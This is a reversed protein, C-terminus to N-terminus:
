SFGAVNLKRARKALAEYRNGKWDGFHRCWANLFRAEESKRKAKGLIVAIRWAYYPPPTEGKGFWSHLTENVISIQRSLDNDISKLESIFAEEDQNLIALGGMAEGYTQGPRWTKFAKAFARRNMARAEEQNLIPTTELRECLESLQTEGDM